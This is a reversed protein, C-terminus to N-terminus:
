KLLSPRGRIAADDRAMLARVGAASPVASEVMMRIVNGLTYRSKLRANRELNLAADVERQLEVMVAPDLRIQIAARM